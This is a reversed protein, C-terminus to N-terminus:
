PLLLSTPNAINSCAWTLDSGVVELTQGQERKVTAALAPILPVQRGGFPFPSVFHARFGIWPLFEMEGMIAVAKAPLQKAVIRWRNLLTKLASLNHCMFCIAGEMLLVQAAAPPAASTSAIRDCVNNGLRCGISKTSM